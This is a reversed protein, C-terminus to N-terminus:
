RSLSMRAFETAWEPIVDGRTGLAGSMRLFRATPDTADLVDYETLPRRDASRWGLAALGEAVAARRERQAAGAAVALLLLRGADQQVQHRGLPLTTLLHEWLDQDRRATSAGKKTLLLRGKYKRTLGLARATERLTGIQHNDVERTSSGIWGQPWDLEDRAAVVFDPRVYGAATLAVGDAGLRHLLWRLQTLAGDKADDLCPGEGRQLDARALLAHVRPAARYPIRALLPALRSDLVPPHRRLADRAALAGNVCDRDFVDPRFDRGLWERLVAHEPHGAEALVALLHEYGPEGGCDEPPCAREGGLCRGEAPAATEEVAELVVTHEWGDGFDYEYVLRDGPEALLEDLTVDDECRDGDAFGDDISARMAYRALAGARDSRLWQHLHTDQWGMVTQLVPHLEGLTLTSPVLLRRWVEPVVHDLDIRLRYGRGARAAVTDLFSRLEEPDTPVARLHRGTEPVRM